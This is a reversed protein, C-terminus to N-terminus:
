GNVQKSYIHQYASAREFADQNICYRSEVEPLDADGFLYSQMTSKGEQIFQDELAEKQNDGLVLRIKEYDDFFYEQLLPLIDYRFIQSLNEMTLDNRLPLFFSHGITHERDYLIEIRQNIVKLMKEVDIGDVDVGNLLTVDPMMEIFKFRRRLATDLLAISRDATNMTGLIYVNDPVSFEKKSYPLRVKIEEKQGRRKTPEILTILEGFIKSINGRNIEDIIFVYRKDNDVYSKNNDDNTEKLIQLVNELSVSLRYVTSLTMTKGNNMERIDYHLGKALWEVRRVRKYQDFAEDWEYDGTVVGIADITTSSYCSLVIDGVQMTNVFANLVFKGEGLERDALDPGYEDWGVRIHGNMMCEERVPNDGTGALSVKWVVPDKRFGFGQEDKEHVVPAGATECFKKFVGAEIRYRVDTDEEGDPDLDPRIGEIFEEYGYSQHFTTFAIQGNTMYKDYRSKVDEYSEKRVDEIDVGDVIAVAYYLTHYTKGTGPPGQLIMNKPYETQHQKKSNDMEIVGDAKLQRIANNLPERLRWIFTGPEGGAPKGFFLVPWYKDKEEEQYLPCATQKHVYQAAITGHSGYHMAHGGYKIALQKCSAEGGEENLYYLVDLWDPQDHQMKTLVDKYDESTLGPDYEDIPPYYGSLGARAIEEETPEERHGWLRENETTQNWAMLSLSPFSDWEYENSGFVSKCRDMYEIYVNAEPVSAMEMSAITSPVYKDYQMYIRNRNDLSLFCYPRIWYLGITIKWKLEKQIRAVNFADLFARRSKDTENDAYEIAAELLTWLNDIDHVGREGFSYFAARRNDVVPIGMLSEPVLANVDFEDRIAEIIRLRNETTMYRNFLSYVTFPDIDILENDKDLMPLDFGALQYCNKVKEILVSREDKYVLLKDALEMYFAAWSFDSKM